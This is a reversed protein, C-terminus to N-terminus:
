RRLRVGHRQLGSGLRDLGGPAQAVHQPAQILARELDNVIAVVVDTTTRVGPTALLNLAQLKRMALAAVMQPDGLESVASDVQTLDLSVVPPVDFWRRLTEFMEATVVDLALLEAPKSVLGTVALDDDEDDEGDDFADYDDYDYDDLDDGFDDGFEEPDDGRSPHTM